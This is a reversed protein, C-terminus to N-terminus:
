SAHQLLRSFLLYLREEDKRHQEAKAVVVVVFPPITFISNVVKWTNMEREGVKIERCADWKLIEELNMEEGM